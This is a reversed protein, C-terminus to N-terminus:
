SDNSEDEGRTVNRGCSATTKLLGETQALKVFNAVSRECSEYMSQLVICAEDVTINKKEAYDEITKVTRQTRSFHMAHIARNKRRKTTSKYKKIRGDVGGYKDQFEGLGYWESLIAVLSDHTQKMQYGAHVDSPDSGPPDENNDVSKAPQQPERNQRATM